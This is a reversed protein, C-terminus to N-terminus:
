NGEKRYLKVETYNLLIASFNLYFVKKLKTKLSENPDRIKKIINERSTKKNEFNYNLKGRSIM